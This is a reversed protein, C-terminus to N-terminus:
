RRGVAPVSLLSRRTLGKIGSCRKKREKKHYVWCKRIVTSETLQLTTAPPPLDSTIRVFVEHQAPLRHEPLRVIWM